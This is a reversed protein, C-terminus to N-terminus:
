GGPLKEPLCPVLERTSEVYKDRVLTMSPMESLGLPLSELEKIQHALRVPLEQHLFQAAVLLTELGPNSGFHFLQQLTVPRQKIRTLFQIKDDASNSIAAFM